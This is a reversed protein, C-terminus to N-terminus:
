GYFVREVVARARRGLRLYTEELESGSGPPYGLLRALGMLALREHPLVDLQRGTTRGTWLVIADRLRSALLWAERLQEEDDASLLGAQAAAALAPLTETTRLEPVHHGHQLQLLQVTWEVDSLGGRGLKLHRSPDLGRPLREAEMRAKLRRVERVVAADAGGAPYRLPDVLAEFRERLGPDGAVARGRLLAQSEWPSSWRQYYEAYSGLSRVLPGNRGEPRLDADVELSPEEGVQGLLARIRTALATAQAQARPEDAGPLPDHVFLVDADSGYAMERGGFRGMAIIAMRTLLGDDSHEAEYEVIRLAGALAVEAAATMAGAAAVVDTRGLVQAVSTRALERRRVARLLTAAEDADHQRTLVKDVEAWLRGADRPALEADEDLWRVSEPSRAIADAVYRSTSLVHALRQAAVGSDRLLKLYWHTSGLEDSLRRFALLGADSDAGDAFWGLLVPLLQRQIAARRSVGETLAQIHRLAGAPDRYGIAQLRAKAAEPSLSAEESSLSATAPLLPRYFLEEHLHRVERRVSRWRESVEAASSMGASRALRRLDAETSPMLHTRRLRSLQIRHELVRLLRYCVALRAAHDRGVYGGASLAQLASLTHPSRISEDSRGHVLQLLQVTFEVDRLGGQGLKLQRDAESPPVHEEVRRRMAQSDEVFHEREVARWVLPSIAETYARGAERDGAVVRAKLLAQFEWTKAWREYYALHSAVTRVLPGQKGEPRLAADVPWLAPEGSPASCARAMGTALKAAVALAEDEAVGGAPEAVYIVDVDSVYNLERGGTKGMGLVALRAGAGHDPLDARAVALGAELAAAALDALASGVAPLLSLPEDSVLDAAAIALLRRRYARRMADTGEAGPLEAVPAAAGPDAGVATLMEARVVAPDAGIPSPAELVDLDVPHRVLHDALAGSAGLVAVLRRQADGATTLLERVRARYPEAVAALRTAALLAEDPSAARGLLDILGDGVEGLLGVLDRDALLRQARETDVFGARTLRARLSAPPRTDPGDPSM